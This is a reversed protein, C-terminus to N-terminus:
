ARHIGASDDGPIPQEQSAEETPLGAAKWEDIGGHLVGVREFGSADLKEAIERARDDDDACVVIQGRDHQFPLSLSEAELLKKPDYRVAGRIQEGHQHKRVDLVVTDAGFERPEITEIPM